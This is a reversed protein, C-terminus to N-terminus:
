LLKKFLNGVSNVHRREQNLREIVYFPLQARENPKLLDFNPRPFVSTPDEIQITKWSKILYFLYIGFIYKPVKQLSSHNKGMPNPQIETFINKVMRRWQDM